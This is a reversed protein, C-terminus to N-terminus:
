RERRDLSARAEIPATEQLHCGQGHLREAWDAEAREEDCDVRNEEQQKATRRSPDIRLATRIASVIRAVTTVASIADGGNLVESVSDSAADIIVRVATMTETSKTQIM